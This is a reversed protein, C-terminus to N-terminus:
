KIHPPPAIKNIYNLKCQYFVLEGKCTTQTTRILPRRLTAETQSIPLLHNCLDALGMDSRRPATSTSYIALCGFRTLNMLETMKTDWGWKLM